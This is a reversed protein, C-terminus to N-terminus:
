AASRRGPSPLLTSEKSSNRLSKLRRILPRYVTEWRPSKRLYLFTPRKPNKQCAYLYAQLRTRDAANTPDFNCGLCYREMEPISVGDRTLQQQIQEIRALPLGSIIAIEETPIDKIHKGSGVKRRALLRIYIPPYEKWIAWFSLARLGRSVKKKKAM